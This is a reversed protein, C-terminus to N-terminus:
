SGYVYQYFRSSCLLLSMLSMFSGIILMFGGTSATIDCTATTYAPRGLSLLGLISLSLLVGPGMILSIYRVYSTSSQCTLVMLIPLAIGMANATFSATYGAVDSSINSLACVYGPRRFLLTGLFLELVGSSMMMALTENLILESTYFRKLYYTSNTILRKFNQIERESKSWTKVTNDYLILKQNDQGDNEIVFAIEDLARHALLRVLVKAEPHEWYYNIMHETACQGVAEVAASRASYHWDKIANQVIPLVTAVDVGKAVITHSPTPVVSCVNVGSYRSANDIDMSINPINIGRDVLTGLVERVADHVNLNSDMLSYRIHRSILDLAAGQEVLTPLSQIAAIRVGRDEDQLAQVILTLVSDLSAGKEVSIALVEIVASRISTDQYAKLIAPLVTTIDAGKIVLTRLVEVAASRVHYGWDKLAHQTLIMIKSSYHRCVGSSETLLALLTNLIGQTSEGDMLYQHLGKKFWTSLNKGLGFESELVLMDQSQEKESSRFVLLWENLLRFQLVLHQLGVIERPVANILQLLDRIPQLPEKPVKLDLEQPMGQFIEGAMFRLAQRHRPMYMYSRLFETVAHQNGLLFHRALARGAFYARLSPHLFIDTDTVTQHEQLSILAIDELVQLLRERHNRVDVEIEGEHILETRFRQWVHGALARYLTALGVPANWRRMANGEHQWLTCLFRLTVPVHALPTVPDQQNLKHKQIFSILGQATNTASVGLTSNIFNDRQKEDLGMHEVEIDVLAREPAIDQPRATLLLKYNVEAAAQVVKNSALTREDLGDLIVLTDPNQLQNHVAECWKQHSEAGSEAASLYEGVIAKAILAAGPIPEDYKVLDRVPLLYVAEFEQGWEGIAWTYALKRALVTKGIGVEGLLLVKNIVEAPEGPELSRPIFLNELPIPTKVSKLREQPLDEERGPAQRKVKIQAHIQLHWEMSGVSIPPEGPWSPVERFHPTQYHAKLKAQIDAKCLASALMDLDQTTAQEQFSSSVPSIELQQIRTGESSLPTLHGQIRTDEEQWSEQAPVSAFDPNCSQLFLGFLLIHSLTKHNKTHM